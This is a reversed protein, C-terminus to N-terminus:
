EKYVSPDKAITTSGFQKRLKELREEEVQQMRMMDGMFGGMPTNPNMGGAPRQENDRVAVKGKGGADPASAGPPPAHSNEGFIGRSQDALAGYDFGFDDDPDETSIEELLAGQLGQGQLGRPKSSSGSASPLPLDSEDDFYDEVTPMKTHQNYPSLTPYQIRTSYGILIYVNLLEVSPVSASYVANTGLSTKHCLLLLTPSPLENYV